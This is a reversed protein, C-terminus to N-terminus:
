WCIHSCEHDVNAEIEKIKTKSHMIKMVTKISKLSIGSEWEKPHMPRLIKYTNEMYKSNGLKYNVKAQWKLM